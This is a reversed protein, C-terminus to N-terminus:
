VQYLALLLTATTATANIRTPQIPLVTGAPIGSFTATTGDAMVAVLAGTGGVYVARPARKKGDGATSEGIAVTDSPTIAIFTNYAIPIDIAM